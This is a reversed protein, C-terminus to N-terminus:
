AMQGALSESGHAVISDSCGVFLIHQPNTSCLKEKDFKDIVVINYSDTQPLRVRRNLGHAFTLVTQNPKAILYKQYLQIAVKNALVKDPSVVLIDCPKSLADAASWQSVKFTKDKESEISECGLITRNPGIIDL